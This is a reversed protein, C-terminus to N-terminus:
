FSRAATARCASASACSRSATGFWASFDVEDEHAESKTQRESQHRPGGYLRLNSGGQPRADGRHNPLEDCPSRRQDRPHPEYRQQQRPRCSRDRCRRSQALLPDHLRVAGLRRAKRDHRQCWRCRRSRTTHRRRRDAALGDLALVHSNSLIVCDPEKPQRSRSSCVSPATRRGFRSARHQLRANRTQRTGRVSAAGISRYCRCRDQVRRPGSYSKSAARTDAGEEAAEESRCLRCDRAGGTARGESTRTGVALGQVAPTNIWQTPRM